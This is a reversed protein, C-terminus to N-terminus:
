SEPHTTADASEGAVTMAPSSGAIWPRLSPAWSGQIGPELGPMVHTPLDTMPRSWTARLRNFEESHNNLMRSHDHQTARIERLLVLVLNEPERALNAEM